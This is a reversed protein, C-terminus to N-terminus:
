CQNSVWQAADNEGLSSAKRWDACAGKMDGINEKAIGRNRYADAYRPNIEIAKTYDAIAGYYNGDKYKDVGRNYYFAASEAQAKEPVSLMVAASTLVTGTGIMLPQGMPMLSVMAGFIATHKKM